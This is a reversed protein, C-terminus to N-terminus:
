TFKLIWKDLEGAELDAPIKGIPIAIVNCILKPIFSMETINLRGVWSFICRRKKFHEKTDRLINVKKM